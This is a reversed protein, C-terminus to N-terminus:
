QPMVTVTYDPVSATAPVGKGDFRFKTRDGWPIAVLQGDSRSAGSNSEGSSTVTTRCNMSVSEGLRNPLTCEVTYTVGGALNEEHRFLFGADTQRMTGTLSLDGWADSHSNMVWGGSLDLPGATTSRATTPPATTVTPPVPTTTRPVATTTTSPWDRHDRDGGGTTGVPREFPRGTGTDILIIVTLSAGPSVAGIRTSEFGTWPTGTFKPTHSLATPLTLPSGSLSRFRPVGYSDVLVATGAQLISQRAVTQGDVLTYNTVRLDIRLLVPTLERLYQVLDPGGIMKGRSRAFATDTGLAQAASSAEAPHSDYFAILEDRDTLERDRPASYLGALDGSYPEAAASGTTSRQEFAPQPDEPHYVQPPTPMFPNDGQEGSPELFIEPPGLSDTRSTFEMAATVAGAAAVLAVILALILGLRTLRLTRDETRYFINYQKGDGIQLGDARRVDASYKPEDEAGQRDPNRSM